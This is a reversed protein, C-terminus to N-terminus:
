LACLLQPTRCTQQNVPEDYRYICGTLWCVQRRGRRMADAADGNTVPWYMPSAGSLSLNNVDSGAEILMKVVGAHGLLLGCVRLLFVACPAM